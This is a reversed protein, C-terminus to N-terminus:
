GKDEYEKDSCSDAFALSSSLVFFFFLKKM